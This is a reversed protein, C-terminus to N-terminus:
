AELGEGIGPISILFSMLQACVVHWHFLSLSLSLRETLNSLQSKVVGHVTFDM